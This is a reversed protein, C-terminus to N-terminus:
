LCFYELLVFLMSQVKLNLRQFIHVCKEDGKSSTYSKSLNWRFHMQAHFDWKPYLDCEQKSDKQKIELTM